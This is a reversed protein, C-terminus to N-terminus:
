PVMSCYYMYTTHVPIWIVLIFFGYMCTYCHYASFGYLSSLLWSYSMRYDTCQYIPTSIFCRHTAIIRTIDRHIGLVHWLLPWHIDLSSCYGHLSSVLAHCLQTECEHITVTYHGLTDTSCYVHLTVTIHYMVDYHGLMHHGLSRLQSSVHCWLTWAYPSRTPRIDTICSCSM